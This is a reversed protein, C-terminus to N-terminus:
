DMFTLHYFHLYYTKSHETDEAFVMFGMHDITRAISDSVHGAKGGRGKGEIVIVLTGLRLGERGYKSRDRRGRGDIGIM